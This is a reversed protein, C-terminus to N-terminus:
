MIYKHHHNSQSIGETTMPCKFVQNWTATSNPFTESTHDHWCLIDHSTPKSLQVGGGNGTRRKAKHKHYLIHVRLMQRAGAAMGAAPQLAEGGQCGGIGKFWPALCCKWKHTAQAMTNWWLSLFTVWAAKRHYEHVCGSGEKTTKICQTQSQIESHLGINQSQNVIYVRKSLVIPVPSVTYLDSACVARPSSRLKIGLECAGTVRVKPPDIGRAELPVQVWVCTHERM